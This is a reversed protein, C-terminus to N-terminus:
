CHAYKYWENTNNYAVFNFRFYYEQLDYQIFYM